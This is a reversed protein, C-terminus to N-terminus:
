RGHADEIEFFPAKTIKPITIMGSLTTKVEQFSVIFEIKDAYNM